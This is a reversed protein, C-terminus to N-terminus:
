SSALLAQTRDILRDVSFCEQVRRRARTGLSTRENAPMRVVDRFASALARADQVAVVLGADGVIQRADGVDTVVCVRECAMGEGIVNSFGEGMRSSSCLVDISSYVPSLDDMEGAWTLHRDLGLTTAFSRLMEAYSGSKPGVCVFRARVGEAILGAAARLFTPHDKMPDPRAVIGVLPEDDHIGWELRLRQRGVPDFRFRETDIGNPIVSLEERPYGDRVCQQKGAESNCVIADACHAALAALRAEMGEFWGYHSYDLGSARVGLVIRPVRLMPRLLAGLINASTLFCYLVAPRERRIVRVLRAVFGIVDWRGRKELDYVRVGTGALDLAMAGGGYFTVVAVDVGRKQLGSALMVLQREAGGTNLSRILFAVSSRNLRVSPM